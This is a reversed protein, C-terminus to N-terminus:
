SRIEGVGTMCDDTKVTFFSTMQNAIARSRNCTIDAFSCTMQSAFTRKRPGVDGFNKRVILWVVRQRNRQSVRRRVVFWRQFNRLERNAWRSSVLKVLHFAISSNSRVFMLQSVCYERSGRFIIIFNGPNQQVTQVSCPFYKM